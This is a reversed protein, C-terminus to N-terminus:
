PGYLPGAVVLSAAAERTSDFAAGAPRVDGRLAQVAGEPGPRHDAPHTALSPRGPRAGRAVPLQVHCAASYGRRARPFGGQFHLSGPDLPLYIVNRYITLVKKPKKQSKKRLRSPSNDYVSWLYVAACAAAGLPNLETSLCAGTLLLEAGKKIPWSKGEEEAVCQVFNAALTSCGSPPSSGPLIQTDLPSQLPGSLIDQGLGGPDVSDVPSDAVYRFLKIGRRLRVPDESIFRQQTPSYYRAPYNYLGIGDDERATYQYSNTSSAGSVATNGFPEYTYQTQPTGTSDTLALTSRLADSLFYRPGISDTRNLIEDVGLGTILNATVTKGTLEQVPNVGDYLFSTSAGLVTKNMRRGVADYVFSALAGSNISALQNRANWAYTDTGNSTMNGNLDYTLTASGWQTLQNDANYSASAVAAPLGTSAYSGGIRTRRGDADYTNALNGLTTIGLTYTLGTLESALDYSYSPTVGNALKLSTRRKANDYSLSVASTGQAVSTLRNANDYGCTIQPQGAVTMATRCSANDYVYGVSGQPTTEKTLRDLGDYARSITGSISDNAQTLRNGLDYTYSTSSSDAYTAKTRRNLPDYTFTTEQSKRDTFTLLNSNLDYTYSETHKLPDARTSLRDLSDYTYSTVIKRADTLSTLNRDGDYTFSTLNGLPDATSTLDSLADYQYQTSAGLPDTLSV